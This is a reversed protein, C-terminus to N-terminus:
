SCQQRIKAFVITLSIDVLCCLINRGTHKNKQDSASARDVIGSSATAEGEGASKRLSSHGAFM